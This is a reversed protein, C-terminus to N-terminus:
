LMGAAPMIHIEDVSTGAPMLPANLVVRAVDSAPMM